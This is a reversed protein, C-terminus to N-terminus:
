LYVGTTLLTKIQEKETDLCDIDSVEVNDFQAFGKVNSLDTQLTTNNIDKAVSEHYSIVIYPDLGYLLPSQWKDGGILTMDYTHYLVDQSPTCDYMKIPYGDSTLKFVGDGTIVDILLELGVTHGLLSSDLSVIGVFPLMLSVTSNFDNADGNILPLKIYGFDYDQIRKKIANCEIETSYNGCKLITTNGKPVSAYIRKIRNVYEGLDNDVIYYEGSERFYRKKSFSDLIDDDVVYAYITGLNLQEVPKVQADGTFVIKSSSEIGSDPAITITAETETVRTLSVTISEGFKNTYAAKLNFDTESFYYGDNPTFVALVDSTARYASALNTECYHVNNEIIHAVVFEGTITIAQSTDCDTVTASASKGDSSVVLPLTKGTGDSGTYEAVIGFMYCTTKTGTLTLVLTNTSEDLSYSATTTEGSVNNIITVGTPVEGEQATGSITIANSSKVDSMAFTYTANNADIRTFKKKATSGYKDTYSGIINFDTEDFTYGKIPQVVGTISSESVRYAKAFSNTCNTTNDTIRVSRVFEGTITIEQTIDCDTITVNAQLGTDVNVFDIEKTGGTTDVYTAKIDFLYNRTVTGKVNINLTGTSEDYTPTITTSSGSINNTITIDAM